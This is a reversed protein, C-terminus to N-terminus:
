SSQLIAPLTRRIQEQFSLVSVDTYTKGNVETTGPFAIGYGYCREYATLAANQSSYSLDLGATPRKRFGVCCIAKTAKTLSKHVQLPDSWSILTINPYQGQLIADAIRASEEKVGDYEGDREFLFPTKTKYIGIASVGLENLHKLIVTGSHATGFVVVKDDQSVISSLQNKDLAQQLPIIPMSLELTKEIAGTTLFLTKVKVEGFTHHLTWFESSYEARLVSTTIKEISAAAKIATAYCLTAIERVPMCSESSYQSDGKLLADAAWPRYEALAKRTKWWPTNSLVSGYHTILAGGILTEDLIVIQSPQVGREILELILLQGAIGFGVVGFKFM